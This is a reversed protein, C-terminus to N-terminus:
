TQRLREREPLIWDQYCSPFLDDRYLNVAQELMARRQEPEEWAHQLAREFEAVDCWVAPAERWRLARPGIEIYVEIEPWARRLRVLLARLNSLAQAEPSDPWLQFALHQRPHAIGPPLLLRALLAQGSASEAALIPRGQQTLQFGGLLQIRFPETV